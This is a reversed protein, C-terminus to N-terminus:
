DSKQSGWCVTPYSQWGGITRVTSAASFSLQRGGWRWWYPYVVKTKSPWCWARFVGREIGFEAEDSRNRTDATVARYAKHQPSSSSSWCLWYRRLISSAQECSESKSLNRLADRPSERQMRGSRRRDRGPTLAAARRQQLARIAHPTTPAGRRSPLAKPLGGAKPTRTQAAAIQATYKPVSSPGASSARRLPTSPKRIRGALQRLQISILLWM